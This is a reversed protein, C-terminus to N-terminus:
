NLLKPESAGGDMRRNEREDIEDLTRDLLELLRQDRRESMQIRKLDEATPQPKNPPEGGPTNPHPENTQTKGPTAVTAGPQFKGEAVDNLPAMNLPVLHLEGHKIPNMDELELIDNISLVGIGNLDRYYKARDAHTTRMLGRLDIKTYLGAWNNTLLKYDSEQEFKKIWPMLCESIVDLSLQEASNYSIKEFHGVKSPPVNFWRCIDEVTFRRTALFQAQEPPLGIVKYEMGEELILTDQSNYPGSSSQKLHEELRKQAGASLHKPHQVVSSPVGSNAFFASGYEESAVSVGISRAAFEVVSFGVVGDYGLGPIHFMDLADIYVEGGVNMCKYTLKGAGDRIPVVRVPDIPWLNIPRGARDREIEAYFNGYICVHYIFLQRFTVASMDPNPRRDLLWYAPNDPQSDSGKGNSKKRRVDCPLQAISGAIFNVCAWVTSVSLAVEPTVRVPLRRQVMWGRFRRGPEPLLRRSLAVLRNMMGVAQAM